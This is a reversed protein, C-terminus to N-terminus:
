AEKESVSLRTGRKGNKNTTSGNKEEILIRSKM